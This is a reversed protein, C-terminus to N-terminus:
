RLSVLAAVARELKEAAEAQGLAAYTAAAQRRDEIERELIAAVESGSLVRRPVEGAGLGRVGGAIVGHEVPPAASADAAEANDIAALLERLVAVAETERRRAADRLVARLGAKWAEVSKVGVSKM